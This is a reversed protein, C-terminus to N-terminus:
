GLTNGRSPPPDGPTEQGEPRVAKSRNSPDPNAGLFREANQYHATYVLQNLRLAVPRLWEWEQSMLGVFETAFCLTDWDTATPDATKLSQFIRSARESPSPYLADVKKILADLSEGNNESM